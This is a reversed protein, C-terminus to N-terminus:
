RPYRRLLANIEEWCFTQFFLFSPKVFALLQTRSGTHFVFDGESLEEQGDALRATAWRDGEGGLLGLGLVVSVRPFSFLFLPIM